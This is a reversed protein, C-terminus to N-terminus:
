EDEILYSSVRTPFLSLDREFEELLDIYLIKIYTVTKFKKLGIRLGQMIWSGDDAFIVNLIPARCNSQILESNEALVQGKLKVRGIPDINLVSELFGLRTIILGVM